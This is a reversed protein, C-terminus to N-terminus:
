VVLYIDVVTGALASNLDVTNKSIDAADVTVTPATAERVNNIAAAIVTNHSLKFPIGLKDGYGVEVTDTGAHVEAPFDIKTVTKFAKAGQVVTADVLTLTEDIANGAIDTGYVKVDGACGAANGKVTVNRPTKPNTIGATIGAQALAALTFATKCAHDSAADANAAAVQYHAVHGKDVTLGEVGTQLLQGLNPNEPYFGGM